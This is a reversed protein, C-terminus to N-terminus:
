GSRVPSRAGRPRLVVAYLAVWAAFAQLFWSAPLALAGFGARWGDSRSLLKAAVAGAMAVILVAAGLAVWAAGDALSDRAAGSRLAAAAGVGLVVPYALYLVTAGVSSAVDRAEEAPRAAGRPAMARVRGAADLIDEAIVEARDRLWRRSAPAARFSSSDLAEIRPAREGPRVPGRRRALVGFGGLRRLLRMNFHVSTVDPSRALGDTGAGRLIEGTAAMRGLSTSGAPGGGRGARRGIRRRGVRLGVLPDPTRRADLRALLDAEFAAVARRLQDPAPREDQDYAVVYRGRALALGHDCARVVDVFDAEPVRAVRVWDRRGTERLAAITDADEESVVLIADTRERPYDVGRFNDFLEELGPQGGCVRVIVSYLPLDRDDAAERAPVPGDQRDDDVLRSYGAALQTIGGAVFLASALLLVPVMVGLPLLAVGATAAVAGVAGLVVHVPRVLRGPTTRRDGILRALRVGLAVADLDARSCAVFEVRRAPFAELVEVVLDEAPRVCTAVVVAGDDTLECALWGLEVAQEVDVEALLGPQPPEALLDRWQVEWLRALEAYFDEATIMGAAILHEGIYGGVRRQQQTAWALQAPDLLGAAVLRTGISEM